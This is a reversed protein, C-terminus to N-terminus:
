TMNSVNPEKRPFENVGALGDRALVVIRLAVTLLLALIGAVVSLTANMFAELLVVKTVVGIINSATYLPHKM